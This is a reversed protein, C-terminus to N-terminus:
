VILQLKRGQDPCGPGHSPAERRSADGDEAPTRGDPVLPRPVAQPPAQLRPAGADPGAAEEGLALGPVGALVGM